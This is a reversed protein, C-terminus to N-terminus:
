RQVIRRPHYLLIMDHPRLNKWGESNFHGQCPTCKMTITGGYLNLAGKTGVYIGGGDSTATNETITGGYMNMTGNAVEVGGGFGTRNGGRLTGGYMNFTANYNGADDVSVCCNSGGLVTGTKQASCDCLYLTAGERGVWIFYQGLNLTHGNLCLYLTKGRQDSDGLIRLDDDLTIDNELYAYAVNVKEINFIQRLSNATKCATYTVDQHSTHDGANVSGGCFCHTHAAQVAAGGEALQPALASAEGGEPTGDEEFAEDDEDEPAPDDADPVEAYLACNEPQAGEAGCVPCGENVEEATCATECICAPLNEGGDEAFAATPLVSLAMILVLLISLLRKKM